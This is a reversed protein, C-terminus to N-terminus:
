SEASQLPQLLEGGIRIDCGLALECGGGFAFGDVVAITPVNLGELEAIMARLNDLFDSVAAQSM